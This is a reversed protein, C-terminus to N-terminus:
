RQVESEVAEVATDDTICYTQMARLSRAHIQRGLNRVYETKMRVAAAVARDIDKRALARLPAAYDGRRTPELYDALFVIKQLLTMNADGTPHIRIARLIEPSRVGFEDRAVMVGVYAHWLKPIAMDDADEIEAAIREKQAELDSEKAIDHLLAAILADALNAGHIAALQVALFAVALSHEFRRPSLRDRLAQTIEDIKQPSLSGQM